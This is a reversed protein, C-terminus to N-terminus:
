RLKPRQTTAAHHDRVGILRTRTKPDFEVGIGTVAIESILTPVRGALCVRITELFPNCVLIVLSRAM